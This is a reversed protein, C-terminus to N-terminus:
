THIKPGPTLSLVASSSQRFSNRNFPHRSLEPKSGRPGGPPAALTLPAAAPPGRPPAERLRRPGVRAPGGPSPACLPRAPPPAASAAASAPPRPPPARSRPPERCSGPHRSGAARRGSSDSGCAGPTAAESAARTRTEVGPSPFHARVAAPGADRAGRLGRHGAPKDSGGEGTWGDGGWTGPFSSSPSPGPSRCGSCCCCRDLSPTEGNGRLRWSLIAAAASLPQAGAPHRRRSFRKAGPGRM